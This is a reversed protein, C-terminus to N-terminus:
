AGGEAGDGLVKPVKIFPPEVGPSMRMLAANPLAEGTSDDGIRADDLGVASDLPHTLPAVGELDLEALRSIHELVAQLEARLQELRDDSLELRALRAVHRAEELTLIASTDNPTPAM